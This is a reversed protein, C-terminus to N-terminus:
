GLELRQQSEGSRVIKIKDKHRDYYQTLYEKRKQYDWGAHILGTNTCQLRNLWALEEPTLAERFKEIQHLEKYKKVTMGTLAMSVLNAENSYHHAKIEKGELERIEKVADTMPKFTESVERRLQKWERTNKNIQKKLSAKYRKEAEIFYKRILKGKENNEVMALEKAM